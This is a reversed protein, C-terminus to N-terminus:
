NIIALKENFILLIFEMQVFKYIIRRDIWLSIEIWVLCRKNNLHWLCTLFLWMWYNFLRVLYSVLWLLIMPIYFLGTTTTLHNLTFDSWVKLQKHFHKATLSSYQMKHLMDRKSVRLKGWYEEKNQQSKCMKQFIIM